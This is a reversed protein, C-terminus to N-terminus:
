KTLVEVAKKLQVDNESNLLWSKNNLEEPLEIVYEPTLGKDHICEGSPLYYKAVTMKFVGGNSLSYSTQMIGKGYSQTGILTADGMDRLAGALAESASASNGNILVAMPKDICNADSTEIDGKKGNKDMTYFTEGEPLLIDAIEAFIDVDGGLNNRLDIIVGTYNNSKGYEIAKEFCETANGRFAIIKVHLLSNIMSYEAMERQGDTRQVNFSLETGDRLVTIKVYSLSEGKLMANVDSVTKGAIEQDDLKIIVDGPKIGVAYASLGKYVESVVAKGDDNAIELGVDSQVVGSVSNMYQAYEEPTFYYAYPDDLSAAMGKIAYDVIDESDHHEISHKDILTYVKNLLGIEEASLGGIVGSGVAVRNTIFGACFSIVVILIISIISNSKKSM